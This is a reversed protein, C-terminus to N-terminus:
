CKLWCKGAQVGDILVLGDVTEINTEWRISGDRTKPNGVESYSM